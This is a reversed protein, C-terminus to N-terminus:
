FYPKLKRSAIVLAFLSKEIPSYHSESGCFAHNIYYVLVQQKDIEAVLVSSLLYDSVFIYLFLTEGLLPSVLKPFDILFKKLEIFAKEAEEDWKFNAQKLVRFFTSFHDASKLMFHSLAAIYDTLYQVEKVIRPSKMALIAQMKDPNAKNERENVLFGLCKRGTVGSVCKKPNLRMRNALLIEFTERLHEAHDEVRKSKATMDDVYVELNRGIYDKFIKNVRQQCTARCKKPRFIDGHLM